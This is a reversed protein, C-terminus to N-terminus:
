GDVKVAGAPTPLLRALLMALTSKGSGTRGVIALSQGAKVDFSVDDLIKRDGHSFSLGQVELAGEFHSPARMPGDTVEPKADFIEKLRSYGARGRQVISLSFGLAIMPWTMRGMALWFAFFDGQSLGGNEPGKLLLSGGYWY